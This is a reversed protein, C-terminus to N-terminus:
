PGDPGAPQEAEVAEAQARRPQRAQQDGVVLALLRSLSIGVQLIPPGWGEAVETAKRFDFYSRNTLLDALLSTVQNDLVTLLLPTRKTQGWQEMTERYHRFIAQVHQLTHGVDLLLQSGLVAMTETESLKDDDTVDRNFVSAVVTRVLGSGPKIPSDNLQKQSIDYSM